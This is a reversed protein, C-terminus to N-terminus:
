SARLQHQTASAELDALRGVRHGTGTLQQHSRHAGGDARRVDVVHVMRVRVVGRPHEDPVGVAVDHHAVLEDALDDAVAAPHESWNGIPVRTVLMGM